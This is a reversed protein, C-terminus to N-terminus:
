PAVRLSQQHQQFGRRWERIARFCLAELRQETENADAPHPETYLLRVLAPKPDVRKDPQGRLYFGSWLLGGIVEDAQQRSIWEELICRFRANFLWEEAAGQAGALLAHPFKHPPMPQGNFWADNWAAMRKEQDM